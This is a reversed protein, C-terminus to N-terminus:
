TNRRIRRAKRAQAHEKNDAIKQQLTELQAAILESDCVCSLSIDDETGFHSRKVLNREIAPEFEKLNVLQSTLITHYDLFDYESGFSTYLGDTSAFLALLKKNEIYFSEFMKAANTNCMSSTINAPNSEEYEMPLMTEGSDLVAVLSGDGIQIGFIYGNGAIAAILTTGYYSEVPIKEFEEDTFKSREEPTVPNEEHHKNVKQNWTTIIQKEINRIIRKHHEPFEAEFAAPDAYFREITEITAEVASKSGINSRFHKKSGHGDAVVCVAFGNGVKYASSDQCVTGKAEHSAGMVSRSFGTYM